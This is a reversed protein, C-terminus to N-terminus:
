EFCKVFWRVVEDASSREARLTLRDTAGFEKRFRAFSADIDAQSAPRNLGDVVGEMRFPAIRLNKEKAARFMMLALDEAEVQPVLPVDLVEHPVHLFPSKLVARFSVLGGRALIGQCHDDPGGLYNLADPLITMPEAIFPTPEVDYPVTAETGPGNTKAFSESWLCYRWRQGRKLADSRLFDHVYIFGDHQMSSISKGLMRVTSSASTAGSTRGRSEGRTATEGTGYIDALCVAIGAKLLGAIEKRRDSLFAQKGAQAFAVVMRGQSKKATPELIVFPIELRSPEGRLLVRRISIGGAPEDTRDSVVKVADLPMSYKRQWDFEAFDRKLDFDKFNWARMTRDILDKLEVPRRKDWLDGALEHAMRPKLKAKLEPTWCLLDSSAVRKKYEDAPVDIGFWKKLLPHIMTRHEFGINNCHTAEPPKGSLGGKGHAVGLKDGAGYWEWIKKYRKWVPDREGDWAFEHAHILHRPAISSVIVWPLFGGPASDALGRTSEWSGGGFYNFSTEADDPLPYKTEPQPGGFNFPVLCQIRKDLAATVGSPDGGGAVSGLLIIRAPDANPKNLLLTVGAIMDNAMWGILSEGALHLQVGSNYRFFYDQRTTKYPKPFSKEDIFPHERREGHGLQDPVLVYCGARAWTMGMDQLEGQSKPNHHSHIVIIGPASKPVPVPRYLNATVWLGPRSEFVLNDIAFGEGPLTKAVHVPVEKADLAPFTGLANKLNAIRPAVFKEWEAKDNKAALAKWAAVDERNVREREARIFKGLLLPANKAEESGAPYVRPDIEALRKEIDQASALPVAHKLFYELFALELELADATPVHSKRATLFARNKQGLVANVAVLHNLAQWNKPPDQVGGSVLVPRPAMLAHLDVLDEGADIMEKYLGTRPNQPSPIGAKRQAKPDFGLYWPEWYNVNSDKENFVIGPDSWVACAFRPDLCSAFMSWKGGYSLGIIGIRTADVEPLQALATLCNAAVYALLTLPQRRQDAGAQILADRTDGGLKDLSGPTGISLTVFGRKVLQLGYDHTGVGRGKAGQGISTLPEYFPVVVAPFPGNGKPILLYGDVWKGDPSAQVQVKFETHGDHEVKALKKITAREVLPPWAGLRRHWTKAIEERRRSWDAPTKAVSGDAFQLPSKYAGLQEAFEAPPKAFPELKKWLADAAAPEGADGIPSIAVPVLAILLFCCAIRRM